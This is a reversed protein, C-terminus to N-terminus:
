GEEATSIEVLKVDGAYACLRHVEGPRIRYSQGERLLKEQCHLNGEMELTLTGRIIYLAKDKKEHCQKSLKYNSEIYILKGIYKDTRAWVKIYGWPKKFFEM